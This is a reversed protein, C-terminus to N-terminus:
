HIKYKEIENIAEEVLDRTIFLSSKEYLEKFKNIALEKEIIKERFARAIVGITGHARINLDQAASRADLDDTFFFNSKEQLTLSIAHSEGSDLSFENEIIIARDKFKPQLNKIIIKSPIKIKHKSLEKEVEIPILVNSFLNLIKTLNIETLHIIPGTNSVARTVTFDGNYM